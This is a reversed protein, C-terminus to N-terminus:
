GREKDLRKEYEYYNLIDYLTERDQMTDVVSKQTGAKRIVNFVNMAAQNMARTASWPYLAMVVGVDRLEDLTYLPTKGFETLNALIPADIANCFERYETIDTLAEAFIADAGAAIYANSRDIAAAVGEGAVADTRAIIYFDPDTKGSVAAKIRGVMMETNVLNKNPRHGCRKASVQDEMHVAAAGAKIMAQITYAVGEDEEWGTDIDVLLPISCVSTIRRVDELVNELSTLGLDPLGYSMNSCAAGSLYIARFGVREAMLACYANVTGVIQLPEETGLAKRFGRGPSTTM